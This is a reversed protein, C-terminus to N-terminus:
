TYKNIFADFDAKDTCSGIFGDTVGYDNYEGNTHVVRLCTGYVWRPTTFIAPYSITYEISCFDEIVALSEEYTFTRIVAVEDTSNSPLEVIEVHDLNETLKDYDNYYAHTLLKSECSTMFLVILLLLIIAIIKKM